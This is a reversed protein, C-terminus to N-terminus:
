QALEIILHDYFRVQNTEPLEEFLEKYVLLFPNYRKKNLVIYPEWIEVNNGVNIMEWKSGSLNNRIIEGIFAVMGSYLKEDIKSKNSGQNISIDIYRLQEM